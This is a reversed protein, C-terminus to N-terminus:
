LYSQVCHLIIDKPLRDSLSSEVEKNTKKIHNDVISKLYPFQSLNRRKKYHLVKGNKSQYLLFDRWWDDKLVSHFLHAYTNWIRDIDFHNNYEYESIIVAKLCDLQNYRFALEEHGYTFYSGEFDLLHTVMHPHGNKIAAALCKGYDREYGREDLYNFAEINGYSCAMITLINDGTTDYPQHQIIHNLCTYCGRKIAQKAAYLYHFKKNTFPCSCEPTPIQLTSNNPIITDYYILM